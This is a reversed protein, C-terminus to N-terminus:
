LLAAALAPGAAPLGACSLAVCWPGDDFLEAPMLEPVNTPNIVSALWGIFTGWTIAIGMTVVM